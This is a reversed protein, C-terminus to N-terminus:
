YLRLFLYSIYYKGFKFKTNMEMAGITVDEAVFGTGAAGLQWDWRM